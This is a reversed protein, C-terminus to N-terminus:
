VQAMSMRFVFVREQDFTFRNLADSYNDHGRILPQTTAHVRTHQAHRHILAFFPVAVFYTYVDTGNAALSEIEHSPCAQV